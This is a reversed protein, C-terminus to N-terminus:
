NTKGLYGAMGTPFQGPGVDDPPWDSREHAYSQFAAAFIRLDNITAASRARLNVERLTPVAFAAIVSLIFVVVALEILTFGAARRARLLRGAAPRRLRSTASTSPDFNM